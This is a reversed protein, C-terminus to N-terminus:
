YGVRTSSIRKTHKAVWTALRLSTTPHLRFDNCHYMQKIRPARTAHHGTTSKGLAASDALMPQALSPTRSHM